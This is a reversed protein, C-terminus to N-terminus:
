RLEAIGTFKNDSDFTLEFSGHIGNHTLFPQLVSIPFRVTQGNRAVAKVQRVYSQYVQLYQERPLSIDVVLSGM